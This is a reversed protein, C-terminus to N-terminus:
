PTATGAAAATIADARTLITTLQAPDTVPPHCTTEVCVLAQVDNANL